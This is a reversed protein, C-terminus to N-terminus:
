WSWKVLTGSVSWPTYTYVWRLNPSRFAVKASIPHPHVVEDAVSQPM